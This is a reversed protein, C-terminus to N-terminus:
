CYGVFHEMKLFVASWNRVRIEVVAYARMFVCVCVHACVYTSMLFVSVYVCMVHM